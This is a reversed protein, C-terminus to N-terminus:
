FPAVVKAWVSTGEARNRAAFEKIVKLDVGVTGYQFHAAPGIAAVRGRFGDGDVPSGYQYDDTTQNLYYGNVGLRLNTTVPYSVSYDFHFLQGSRYNTDSDRLNFTYTIKASVELGNTPLYTFAVIPRVSYYNGGTNLSRAMDYAGVPLVIDLAVLPHFAGFDWGVTPGVTIDGVGNQHDKGASSSSQLSAVSGIAFAGLRGGAIKLNSMYFLRGALVEASFNFGLVSSDGHSDNFRNAYYYNVYLVGYWGPDPLMGAFFGESGQGINDGGGETATSVQPFTIAALLVFTAALKHPVTKLSNVAPKLQSSARLFIIRV